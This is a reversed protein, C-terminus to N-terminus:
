LLVVEQQVVLGLDVGVGALHEPHLRKHAPLMGFVPEGGGLEDRDSRVPSM